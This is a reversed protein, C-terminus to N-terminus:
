SVYGCPHRILEARLHVSQHNALRFTFVLFVRWNRESPPFGFTSLNITAPQICSVRGMSPPQLRFVTCAFPAHQSLQILGQMSSAVPFPRREVAITSMKITLRVSFWITWRLCIHDFVFIDM